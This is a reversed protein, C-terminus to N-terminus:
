LWRGMKEIFHSVSLKGIFLVEDRVHPVHRKEGPVQKIRISLTRSRSMLVWGHDLVIIGRVFLMKKWNAATLSYQIVFYNFARTKFNNKKCWVGCAALGWGSNQM